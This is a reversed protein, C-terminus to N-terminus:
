FRYRLTLTASIPQGPYLQSGNIVSTFYREANLLNSFNAQIDYRDRHLSIGGDMTTESPVITTNTANTFYHRQYHGGLSVSLRTTEGLKFERTLYVRGMHKPAHPFRKGGNTQPLGDTRFREILSDAYSYNAIMKFGHSLDGQADYDFNYTSAKGVQEFVGTSITIVRNQDQIRRAAFSTQFRNGFARWRTGVEWSKNIVPELQSGNAPIQTVPNFSTNTSFYFQGNRIWPAWTHLPMFVAGIRYNVKDSNSLHTEPGRSVFVGNNYSDNHAKRDFNPYNIAFNLGLWQAPTVQDQLTITHFRNVSYDVRTIPFNTYEPASDIWTGAMFAAVPVPPLPLANSNSTNPADGTRNSFNYQDSYEYRVLFRHRMRLFNYDGALDTIAQIPRRNHQFYLISRNVQNSAAVYTETEADNYQDRNRRKFFTAGFNLRGNITWRYDIENQWDRSLDFDGKPNLKRDFPFNPIALLAAPIGADLTFRDRTFTQIATLSMNPGFLWTLEPAGTFRNSGTQRWGDVHSYSVDARYLLRDLGFVRGTSAGGVQQLGYRGASYQIEQSRIASPKKRIINIVGGQGAGAGGFLISNPGKLVQVEQVNNLQTAMRNGTLRLGDVYLFDNGSQQTVGGITYWEYVGYQVQTMVGSVNELAHALDNIGQLRLVQEPVGVVYNPIERNPIDTGSATARGVVDTVDVTSAGGSVELTVDITTAGSSLNLTRTQPSFGKRTVGIEYSGPRLGSFTYKGISDSTTKTMSGAPSRLTVEADAIVGGSDQVTGSISLDQAFASTAFCLGLILVFRCLRNV